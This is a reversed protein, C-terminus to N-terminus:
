QNGLDIRSLSVNYLGRNNENISTDSSSFDLDEFSNRNLLSEGLLSVLPYGVRGQLASNRISDGELNFAEGNYYRQPSITGVNREVGQVNKNQYSTRSLSIITDPTANTVKTIPNNIALSIVKEIDSGLYNFLYFEEIISFAIEQSNIEIGEGSFYRQAKEFSESIITTTTESYTSKENITRLFLDSLKSSFLDLSSHIDIFDTFNSNKNYEKLLASNFIDILVQKSGLYDLLLNSPLQYDLSRTKSGSKIQDAVTNFLTSSGYAVAALGGVSTFKDTLYNNSAV